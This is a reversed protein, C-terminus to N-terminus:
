CQHAPAAPTECEDRRRKRPTDTDAKDASAATPLPVLREFHRNTTATTTKAVIEAAAAAAAPEVADLVLRRLFDLAPVFPPGMVARSPPLAAKGAALIRDRLVALREAVASCHARMDRNELCRMAASVVDSDSETSSESARCQLHCANSRELIQRTTVPSMTGEKVLARILSLTALAAASPGDHNKTWVAFCTTAFRDEDTEHHDPEDCNEVNQIGLFKGETNCPESENKKDEINERNNSCDTPLTICTSVNSFQVRRRKLLRCDPFKSAEEHNCSIIEQCTFDASDMIQNTKHKSGALQIKSISVSSKEHKHPQVM